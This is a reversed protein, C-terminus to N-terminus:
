DRAAEDRGRPHARAHLASLATAEVGTYIQTTSLSAHGLLDQIAKLDAGRALLHTAFSHRLAHPTASEPLGLRGRVREMLAQVPRPGLVGGRVARFAPEDAALQFPCAALYAALAERVVPLLPVLRWKGGKGRIRLVQAEPVAERASVALAESIRLGAGYLLLIIARDRAAIWAKDSDEASVELVESAQQETLPRPLRPKLRPGRVLALAPLKIGHTRDVFKLFAKIASLARARSRDALAADGFRRHALYARLDQPTLAALRTLTVPEAHLTQLHLLWAAVDRRYADVTRLSAGQGHALDHTFAILFAEATETMAM